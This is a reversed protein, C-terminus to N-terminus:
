DVTAITFYVWSNCAQPQDCTVELALNSASGLDLVLTKMEEPAVTQSIASGGDLYATLTVPSGGLSTDHMGFTMELSSAGEPLACTMKAGPYARVVSRYFRKGISLDRDSEVFNNSPKGDADSCALDLLSHLGDGHTRGPAIGGGAAFALSLMGVTAIHRFSKTRSM